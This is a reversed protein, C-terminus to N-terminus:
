GNLCGANESRARDPSNAHRKVNLRLYLREIKQSATRTFLAPIFAHIACALGAVMLEGAFSLAVGQHELYTEGLSRPHSLFLSRIM